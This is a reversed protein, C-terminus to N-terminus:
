EGFQTQDRLGIASVLGTHRRECVGYAARLNGHETWLEPNSIGRRLNDVTDLKPVPETFEQPITALLNDGVPLGHPNCAALLIGASTLGFIRLSLKM